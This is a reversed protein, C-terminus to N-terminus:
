LVLLLANFAATVFADMLAGWLSAIDLVCLFTVLFQKRRKCMMFAPKAM